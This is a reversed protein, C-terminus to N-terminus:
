TLSPLPRTNAAADQMHHCQKQQRKTAQLHITKHNGPATSGGAHRSKTVDRGM